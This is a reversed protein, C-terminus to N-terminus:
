KSKGYTEEFSSMDLKSTRSFDRVAEFPLVYRELFCLATRREMPSFESWNKSINLALAQEIKLDSYDVKDDLSLLAICEIFSDNDAEEGFNFDDNEKNLVSEASRIKRWGFLQVHLTMSRSDNITWDWLSDILIEDLNLGDLSNYDIKHTDKQYIWRDPTTDSLFVELYFQTGDDYTGKM